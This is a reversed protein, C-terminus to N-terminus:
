ASATTHHSSGRDPAAREDEGAANRAAGVVEERAQSLGKGM